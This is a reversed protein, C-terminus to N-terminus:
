ILVFKRGYLVTVIMTKMKINMAVSYSNYRFRRTFAKFLLFRVLSSAVSEDDPIPQVVYSKVLATGFLFSKAMPMTIGRPMFLLLESSFKASSEMLTSSILSLTQDSSSSDNETTVLKLVIQSRPTPWSVIGDMWPSRAIEIAHTIKPLNRWIKITFIIKWNTTKKKSRCLDCMCWQKWTHQCYPIACLLPFLIRTGFSKLHWM